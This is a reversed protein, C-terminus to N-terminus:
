DDCVGGAVVHEYTGGAEPGWPQNGLLDGHPRCRQAFYDHVEAPEGTRVIKGACMLSARNAVSLIERHHTILLVTVGDAAIHMIFAAVDAMCLADVGSDPEDLIAVRPPMAYVAALEIRKRKCGSVLRAAWTPPRLLRWRM